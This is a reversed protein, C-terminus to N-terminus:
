ILSKIKKGFFFKTGKGRQCSTNDNQFVVEVECFHNEILPFYINDLIKIYLHANITPTIIETDESGRFPMYSEIMISKLLKSTKKLCDNKHTESSYSGFFIRASDNKGSYIRKDNNFIAKICNDVYKEKM